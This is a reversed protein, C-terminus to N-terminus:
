NLHYDLVIVKEKIESLKIIRLKNIKNIDDLIKNNKINNSNM